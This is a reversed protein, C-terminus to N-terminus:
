KKRRIFAPISSGWDDGDEDFIDDEIIPTAKKIFSNTEVPTERVERREPTVEKVEERAASSQFLSSKKPAPEDGFGTAIM